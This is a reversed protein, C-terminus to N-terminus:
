LLSQLEEVSSRIVPGGIELFIEKLGLVNFIEKLGLVNDIGSPEAAGSEEWGRANFRLKLRKLEPM